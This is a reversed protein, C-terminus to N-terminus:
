HTYIFPLGNFLIEGSNKIVVAVANTNFIYIDEVGAEGQKYDAIKGNPLYVTLKRIIKNEM